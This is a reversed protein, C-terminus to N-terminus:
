KWVGPEAGDGSGRENTRAAEERAFGDLFDAAPTRIGGERALVKLRGAVLAAEECGPICQMDPAARLASAISRVIAIAWSESLHLLCSCVPPLPFQARQLLHLRERAARAALTILDPTADLTLGRQAAAVVAGRFPSLWASTVTLWAQLNGRLAARIGASRLLAVLRRDAARPPGSLPGVVSGPLGLPRSRRTDSWGPFMLTIPLAEVAAVEPLAIRALALIPANPFTRGLRRAHELDGTTSVALVVADPRGDANARELDVKHGAAALHRAIPRGFSACHTILIRM